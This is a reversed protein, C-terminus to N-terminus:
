AYCLVGNGNLKRPLAITIMTGEGLASEVTMSGSYLDICRKVIALGLGTGPIDRVNSARHFPQFLQQLDKQPIGIGEDQL